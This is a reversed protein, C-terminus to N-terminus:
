TILRFHLVFHDIAILFPDDSFLVHVLDFEGM